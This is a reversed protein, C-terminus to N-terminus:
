LSIFVAITLLSFFYVLFINICLLPSCLLLTPSYTLWPTLLSTESDEQLNHVSPDLYALRLSSNVYYQRRPTLSTLRHVAGDDDGDGDRGGNMMEAM